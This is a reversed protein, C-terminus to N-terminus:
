AAAESRAERLLPDRGPQLHHRVRGPRASLAKPCASQEVNPWMGISTCNVVVDAQVHDRQEWPLAVAGFEDALGECTRRHPQLHHRTCGRRAPRRRDGPQGWRGRLGGVASMPLDAVRHRGIGGAARGDGRSLRHQIGVGADSGDECSGPEICSRTPRASAPPWRSSRAMRAREVYRLLNEKHPITVSCGRLGAVAPGSVTSSHRSTRTPPSSACRCTCATTVRDCDFAANMIAPSMSHAVPCGIVGYVKTDPRMADWRYLTRMESSRSSARARVGQGDGAVRVDPVGGFKRGARADPHRGRGHRACHSRRPGRPLPDRCTARTRLADLM